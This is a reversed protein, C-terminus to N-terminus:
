AKRDKVSHWDWRGDASALGETLGLSILADESRRDLPLARARAAAVARRAIADFGDLRSEIMLRQGGAALRMEIWGENPKRRPRFHRLKLASLEQWAVRARQCGQATLAEDDLSYRSLARCLTRAGFWAFILAVTAFVLAIPWLMEIFFLPPATLLLGIAARAGDAILGARPYTLDKM